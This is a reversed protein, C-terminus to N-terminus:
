KMKAEIVGGTNTEREVHTVKVYSLPEALYLVFFRYVWHLRTQTLYFLVNNEQFEQDLTIIPAALSCFVTTILRALPLTFM